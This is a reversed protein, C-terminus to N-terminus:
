LNAEYDTNYIVVHGHNIRDNETPMQMYDGYLQRLFYNWDHPVSYIKEEFELKSVPLIVELPYTERLGPYIGGLASLNRGKRANFKLIFNSLAHLFRFSAVISITSKITNYFFSKNTRYGRKFCILNKIKKVLYSKIKIITNSTTYEYPFIDINLGRHEYPIYPPPNEELVRTNNKRFKAFILWYKKYTRGEQLFYGNPQSKKCIYILKDYDPRPMGIDVDDDWPIFGKHRVAGLLTGGDLFYTLNYKECLAVFTDLIEIEVLQQKRLETLTKEM